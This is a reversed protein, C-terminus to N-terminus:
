SVSVDRGAARISISFGAIVDILSMATLLLFISTAAAPVLLFEVLFAIFLLTSLMHDVISRSDTRTSKLVELFLMALGVLLLLDGVSLTWVGGSVMTVSIVPAAWGAGMGGVLGFAVLNYIIFPLVLLPPIWM